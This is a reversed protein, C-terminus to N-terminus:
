LFSAERAKQAMLLLEQAADPDKTRMLNDWADEKGLLNMGGHWVLQDDIVAYHNGYEETMVVDVGAQKTEDAMYLLHDENDYTMIASNQIIVCVKVGDEIKPTIIKVFRDVKGQDLQPSGIVISEKAELLDRKFADMYNGSDYIANVHYDYDKQLSDTGSAIRYGIKKYTRLRKQYMHDFVRIHSDVYDYVVANRKGPYDRNLRGVYQEVVRPRSIPMALILTDLRPFNFGGRIKQGTAVLVVTEDDPIQPLKREIEANEQDTNDGYLLLVHDEAEPLQESLAKAHSKFRTLM